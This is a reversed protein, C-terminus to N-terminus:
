RFPPYPYRSRVELDEGTMLVDHFAFLVPFWFQEEQTQQSPQKPLDESQSPDLKSPDTRKSLPCEPTRLMKPVSSKLTEIAQLSKKQFKMNKAFQTFCVILDAFAGQSIVIGFRTNYVQTVNEYALSVIGEFPEKAAVTFVGFMTRWGSRINQGRAQIMQILSLLVLEKVKIVTTNGIIHEFPKLFDKQFKFGPLEPIEMFRMSLQRLANLAFEVVNVNTHCGVQIFHQGLVSWINTWEFRVRTMNYGSIEVLKQLSYMRPSGSNGSSQIEQWSVQTLASVFYVIADGSLNATNTFVRDVSRVMDTSRSEEAIDSAYHSHGANSKQRTRTPVQLRGKSGSPTRPGSNTRLMDPVVGEDVGTSILQFRDLQSICTLIERWSDKLLNGEENAVEILVKLAELNKAKMEVLNYLNTFRALSAVFAQRPDELDYTCSIKIALKLGEMCLKVMEMNNTEQAPVSLATLFPTWTVLFMPGVHKVSTAPIFKSVAMKKRQSRFLSKYLDETKSAIEQSAQASAEARLDRGTLANGLVSAFGEKQQPLIGLNAATEREQVLVIENHAIEDFIGILYEKPLDGGDNIGRNNKIFDEHTMRNGKINSSHQDTNLMIVSYSLVYATEANAFAKPNGNCYREAFKMMFRDIKQAEGPLRFSQLFRRLADVFRTQRFDMIDVFAHMIAVHYPDGEGLFEGLTAKNIGPNTILFRAIDMPEDKPIIGEKLLVPLGRKPKFNFQRVANTMATKRQKERELQSPDDEAIPTATGSDGDPMPSSLTTARTDISERMDELSVRSESGQDHMSPAATSISSQSWRVLSRLVEVLAELAQQKMAFEPPYAEDGEKNANIATTALSPPLTGRYQWDLMGNASKSQQEQYAHQQQATIPVPTSSIRSLHEVVREFMNDLATRDCDYNLYIEILARPDTGLRRFISLIYQKQFTPAARKELIALYIEKLFVEVEKKLMMRLNKLMLWFIECSVEFVKAVSSAGNRSLSICLYQKIAQVFPTPEDKDTSKITALPSTFVAIQNHLITHVIHLSLLKSRMSQSRVDHADNAPVSKVSLRCM